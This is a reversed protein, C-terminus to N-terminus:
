GHTTRMIPNTSQFSSIRSLELSELPELSNQLLQKTKRVVHCSAGEVWTICSFGCNTKYGLWPLPVRNTLCVLGSVMYSTTVCPQSYWPASNVLFWNALPNDCRGLSMIATVQILSCNNPHQWSDLIHKGQVHLFPHFLYLFLKWVCQVLHSSPKTWYKM